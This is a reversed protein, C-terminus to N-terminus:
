NLRYQNVINYVREMENMIKEFDHNPIKKSYANLHGVNVGNLLKNKIEIKTDEPINSVSPLRFRIIGYSNAIAVFQVGKNFEEFLLENFFNDCFMLTIFGDSKVLGKDRIKKIQKNANDKNLICFSKFDPSLKYNNLIINYALNNIGIKNVKDWFYNNLIISQRFNKDKMLWIDFINIINILKNLNPHNVKFFEQTLKSASKAENHIIPINIDDFFGKDYHHHDIFVVKINRKNYKQLKQLLNKNQNFSIDTILLLKPTEKQLFLEVDDVIDSINKYDTHFTKTNEFPHIISLVMMCGLADLDNHTLHVIDIL